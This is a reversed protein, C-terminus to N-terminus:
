VLLKHTVPFKEQFATKECRASHGCPLPHFYGKKEFPTEYRTRHGVFLYHTCIESLYVLRMVDEGTVLLFHTGACMKRFLLTTVDTRHWLIHAVNGMM